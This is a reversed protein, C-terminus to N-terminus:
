NRYPHDVPLSLRGCKPTRCVGGKACGPCPDPEIELEAPKLASTTSAIPPLKIWHTYPPTYSVGHGGIVETHEAHEHWKIWCGDEKYDFETRPLGEDDLWGVVVCEDMSEPATEIPQWEM